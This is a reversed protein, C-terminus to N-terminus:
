AAKRHPAVAAARRAIEDPPLTEVTVQGGPLARQLLVTSRGHLLRPLYFWAGELSEANQRGSIVVLDMQGLSNAQGALVAGPEGPLLRVRAGTAWLLRHAEKLPVGPGDAAARDEFLDIGTYSLEEGAGALRAVEIMRVARQGGALGLELIRQVRQRYITRFIIRDAAPYSFHVLYQLTLFDTFAM